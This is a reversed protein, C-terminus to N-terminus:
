TTFTTSNFSNITNLYSHVTMKMTIKVFNLFTIFFELQFIRKKKQFFEIKESKEM